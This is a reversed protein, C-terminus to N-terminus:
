QPRRKDAPLSAGMDPSEIARAQGGEVADDLVRLLWKPAVALAHWFADFDDACRYLLNACIYEADYRDDDRFDDDDHYWVSGVDAGAVRIALLGGQVYGIPLFESTLRDDFWGSVYVLDQMRDARGLGFFPQDVVFGHDPHIGPTTPTAGNTRALFVRYAPPLAFGVREELREVLEDALQEQYDTPVPTSDDIRVGRRGRPVRLLAVGGMHRFAAHVEAPVLAITRSRPVHAWVWGPPTLAVYDDATFKWLPDGAKVMVENATLVDLVRTEDITLDATPEPLEVTARALLDWEPFGYANILIGNRYRMRLSPQDFQRIQAAFGAGPMMPEDGDVGPTSDDAM